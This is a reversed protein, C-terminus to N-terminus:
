ALRTKMAVFSQLQRCELMASAAYNYPGVWICALKEGCTPVAIEFWWGRRNFRLRLPKM